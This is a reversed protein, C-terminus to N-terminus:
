RKGKEAQTKKSHCSHCLAQLNEEVDKGGRKKPLIHDVDISPKKGCLRCIPERHLILLRLKRWTAGYGREHSSARFKKKARIRKVKKLFPKHVQLKEPMDFYYLDAIV